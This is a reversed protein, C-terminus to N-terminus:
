KKAAVSTSVLDPKGDGDFDASAISYTQVGSIIDQHAAFSISGTTSINRLISVSAPLGTISYNNATALDPKGNGDLDVIVVSYPHLDTTSDFSIGFSNLNLNGGAPFTVIFSASAYATLGATTM